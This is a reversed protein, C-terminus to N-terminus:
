LTDRKWRFYLDKYLEISLYVIIPIFGFYWLVYNLSTHVYSHAKALVFWSIPAAGLTLFLILMGKFKPDEKRYKTFLCAISSVVFFIFIEGRLWLFLRSNWKITYNFLVSTPSAQQALKTIGDFRSPDAYTRVTVVEEFIQKSGEILGNFQSVAHISFALIFGIICLVGILIFDGVSRSWTRSNNAFASPILAQSATFITITSLYEYGCLSKLMIAFTIGIGFILKLLRSRAQVMLLAVLPPLFWLFPVWYLNRAFQTIWSSTGLTVLFSVAFLPPAITSYISYLSTLVIALLISTAIQLTLYSLEYDDFLKTFVFGQLGFQSRYPIYSLNDNSERRLLEYAIRTDEPYSFSTKNSIFGLHTSKEIENEEAVISGVVLSESVNQYSSFVNMKAFHLLNWQFSITLFIVALTFSILTKLKFLTRVM